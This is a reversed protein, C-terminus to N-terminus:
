KTEVQQALGFLPKNGTTVSLYEEILALPQSQPRDFNFVSLLGTIANFEAIEDSILTLNLIEVQRMLKQELSESVRDFIVDLQTLNICDDIESHM